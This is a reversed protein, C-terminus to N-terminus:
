LGNSGQRHRAILQEMRDKVRLKLKKLTIELILDESSLYPQRRIQELQSEYLSHEQILKQFEADQSMLGNPFDQAPIPM